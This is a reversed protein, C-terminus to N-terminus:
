KMQEFAFDILVASVAAVIACAGMIRSLGISMKKIDDAQRALVMKHMEIRNELVTVDARLSVLEDHLNNEIKM